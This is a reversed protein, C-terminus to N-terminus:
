RQAPIRDNIQAAEERDVHGNGGVVADDVRTATATDLTNTTQATLTASHTGALLSGAALLVIIASRMTALTDLVLAILPGIRNSELNSVEMRM